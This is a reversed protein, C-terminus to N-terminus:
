FSFSFLIAIFVKFCVVSVLSALSVVYVITLVMQLSSSMAILAVFDM